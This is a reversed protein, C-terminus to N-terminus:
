ANAGAAAGVGCTPSPGSAAVANKTCKITTPCILVCRLERQYFKLHHAAAECRLVLLVKECRWWLVLALWSCGAGACWRWGTM